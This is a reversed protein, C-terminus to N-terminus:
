ACPRAHHAREDRYHLGLLQMGYTAGAAWLAGRFMVLQLVATLEPEWRDVVGRPLGRALAARLATRLLAALQEDLTAADVQSVRRVELRPSPLPMPVAKAAMIIHGRISRCAAVDTGPTATGRSRAAYGNRISRCVRHPARAPCGM